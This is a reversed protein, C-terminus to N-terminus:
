TKTRQLEQRLADRYQPDVDQILAPVARFLNRMGEQYNRGGEGSILEVAVETASQKLEDPQEDQTHSKPTPSTAKKKRFNFM